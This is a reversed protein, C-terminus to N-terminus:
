PQSDEYETIQNGCACCFVSRNISQTVDFTYYHKKDPFVPCPQENM